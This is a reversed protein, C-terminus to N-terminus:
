TGSKAQSIWELPKDWVRSFLRDRQSDFVNEPQLSSVVWWRETTDQVGVPYYKLWFLLTDGTGYFYVAYTPPIRLLSDADITDVFADSRLFGISARVYSDLEASDPHPQPKGEVLMQWREGSKIMSFTDAPTHFDIREWLDHDRLLTQDRWENIRRTLGIELFREVLFVREDDTLRVYTVMGVGQQYTLRGVVFDALVGKEGKLIIRTGATDVGFEGWQDRSRAVLAGVRLQAMQRLISSVFQSSAPKWVGAKTLIEWRSTDVRRLHTSDGRGHPPIILIDSVEATDVRVVFAPLRKEAARKRSWQYILVGALIAVILGGLLAPPIRRLM